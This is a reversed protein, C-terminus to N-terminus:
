RNEQEIRFGAQVCPQGAQLVSAALRHLFTLLPQDPADDPARDRMPHPYQRREDHEGAQREQHCLATLDIRQRVQAIHLDDDTRAIRPLGRLDYLVLDSERESRRQM